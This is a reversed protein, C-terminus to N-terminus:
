AHAAKRPSSVPALGYLPLDEKRVYQEAIDARLEALQKSIKLCVFTAAIAGFGTIITCLSALTQLSQPTM